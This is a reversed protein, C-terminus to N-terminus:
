EAPLKRVVTVFHPSFIKSEFRVLLKGIKNFIYVLIRLMLHRDKLSELWLGFFGYYNAFEVTINKTNLIKIMNSKSMADLNHVSYNSFDVKKQLLGNVSLFNPVTLILVGDPKVFELHKDIIISLDLFHEIFGASMVVDYKIKINHSLVDCEITNIQSVGNIESLKDIVMRDIYNDLITSEAGLYKKMFISWRGPFGGIELFSFGEHTPSYKKLVDYFLHNKAIIADDINSTNKWYERWFTETTLENNIEQM